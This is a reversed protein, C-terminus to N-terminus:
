TCRTHSGSKCAEPDSPPTEVLEMSRETEERDEERELEVKLHEEVEEVEQGERSVSQVKGQRDEGAKEVDTGHGM